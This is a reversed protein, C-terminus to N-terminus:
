NGKLWRLIRQGLSLTEEPETHVTREQVQQEPEELISEESVVPEVAPEEKTEEWRIDQFYWYLAEQSSTGEGGEPHLYTGDQQM